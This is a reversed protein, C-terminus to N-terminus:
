DYWLAIRERKLLSIRYPRHFPRGTLRGHSDGEAQVPAGIGTVQEAIRVLLM